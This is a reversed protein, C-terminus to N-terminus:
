TKVTKGTLLDRLQKIELIVILMALCTPIYLLGSSYARVSLKQDGM